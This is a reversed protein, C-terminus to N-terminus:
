AVYDPLTSLACHDHQLCRLVDPFTGTNPVAVQCGGFDVDSGIGRFLQCGNFRDHWGGECLCTEAEWCVVRAESLCIKISLRLPTVGRAAHGKEAGSGM